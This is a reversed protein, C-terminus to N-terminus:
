TYHDEPVFRLPMDHSEHFEVLKDASDELLKSRKLVQIKIHISSLDLLFTAVPQALFMPHYVEIACFKLHHKLGKKLTSLLTEFPFPDSSSSVSLRADIVYDLVIIIVHLCSEVHEM